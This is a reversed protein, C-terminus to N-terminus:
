RAITVRRRVVGFSAREPTAAVVELEYRGASPIPLEGAYISAEGAYALRAEGVVGGDRRLRVLVERVEWMGGAQTPCSCLMRVRARVKLSPASALTTTTDPALLDIVYGHLELVIGDGGIDRGPVVVLRKTTRVMQDPYGLPGEAEVDIMTPAALSISTEFRAGDPAAFLVDGRAHPEQMIRKTDGTSGEHRGEALVRGTAVDRITIRAGGVASGILKADHTVVHTVIRTAIPAPPASRVVATRSCGVVLAAAALASIAASTTRSALAQLPPFRTM